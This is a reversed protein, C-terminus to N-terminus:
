FLPASLMQVQVISSKWEGIDIKEKRDGKRAVIHLPMWGRDDVSRRRLLRQRSLNQRITLGQDQTM